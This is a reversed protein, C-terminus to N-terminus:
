DMNNNSHRSTIATSFLIQLDVHLFIFLVFRVMTTYVTCVLGTALVAAWLEFGTVSFSLLRVTLFLGRRPFSLSPGVFCKTGANLAFAPTYVCVGM